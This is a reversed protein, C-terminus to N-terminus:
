YTDERRRILDLIRIKLAIEVRRERTCERTALSNRAYSRGVVSIM